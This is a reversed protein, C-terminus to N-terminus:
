GNLHLVSKQANLLQDLWVAWLVVVLGRIM